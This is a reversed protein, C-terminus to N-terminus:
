AAAQHFLEYLRLPVRKPLNLNGQIRDQPMALYVFYEPVAFYRVSYQTGDAPGAGAGWVILNGELDFHTGEVYDVAVGGVIAWLRDITHITSYKLRDKTGKTLITSFRFEAQDIAFRDYEGVAYAPSDSPITALMDGKEWEAFGAFKRDAKIGQVGITTTVGPDWLYRLGECVPCDVDSGGTRTNRCPCESAKRWTVTAGIQDLFNNFWAESFSM